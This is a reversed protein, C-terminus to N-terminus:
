NIIASIQQNNRETQPTPAPETYYNVEINNGGQNTGEFGPGVAFAGATTSGFQQIRLNLQAEAVTGDLDALLDIVGQLTDQTVQGDDIFDILADSAAGLGQPLDAAADRLRIEAQALDLAAQIAEPSDRGFEEVATALDAQADTVGGQADVAAFAPNTLTLLADGADRLNDAARESAGALAEIEVASEGLPGAAGAAAGGADRLSAALGAAIIDGSSAEAMAAGWPGLLEAVLVEIDEATFGAALGFERITDALNRLEAPTAGAADAMEVLQRALIELGEDTMASVSDGLDVLTSELAAVPDVGSSLTQILTQISENAQGANRFDEVDDGIQSLQESFGRLDLRTLASLAQLTNGFAQAGSSFQSSATQIGSPLGALFAIFGSGDFDEFGAAAGALAPVLTNELADVLPPVIELLAAFAPLLAEGVSARLNEFEAALTRQTNAIGDATRAFDGQATVTQELILAYRAQVKAAESVETTSAALGLEVAKAATSAATLNVGLTRLPEAEGVLGARLKELAEGVEINNFSALDAGLQVIEPALEAAAQQSLGLAVFLNGFTGTMELAAANALGLAQPGTQAFDEIEDFFEGFVVQAKSTSEELDSAAEISEGFFDFLARAGQVAGFATVLGLASARLSGFASGGRRGASEIDDGTRKAQTGAQRLEDDTQALERNLNDAADDALGLERRIQALNQEGSVSVPVDVPTSLGQLQAELANIQRQAAQIDLVVQETLAM